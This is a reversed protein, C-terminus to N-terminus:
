PNAIPRRSSAPSVGSRIADAVKKAASSIPFNRALREVEAATLLESDGSILDTETECYKGTEIRHQFLNRTFIVPLGVANGIHRPGSDVTLLAACKGLFAAFPLLRLRGALVRVTFPLKKALDTLQERDEPAGCLAVDFEIEDRAHALISLVLQPSVNGSGQRTTATCALVPRSESFEFERWAAEAEAFDADSPFVRPRLPWDPEVGGVNAVMARFYSPYPSPFDLEVPHTILGSMGKGSYAVRNPIRLAVAVSLDPHHRLSNTCLAVDFSRARLASFGGKSFSWSDEGTNVPLVEDLYPNNALIDASGQTTLYSWRCDPLLRQLPELSCSRYLVDGIHNHGIILGKRWAAPATPEDRAFLRAGSRLVPAALESARALWLKRRTRFARANVASSNSASKM